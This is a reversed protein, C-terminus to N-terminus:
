KRSKRFRYKTKYKRNKSRSTEKMSTNNFLGSLLEDFLTKRGTKHHRRSRGNRYRTSNRGGGGTSVYGDNASSSKAQNLISTLNANQVGACSPGQTCTNQGPAQPIIIPGDGGYQTNLYKRGKYTRIHNSKKMQRSRDRRGGGSTLNNVRQLQAQNEQISQIAAEPTANKALVQIPAAQFDLDAGPGGVIASM